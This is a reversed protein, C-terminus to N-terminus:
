RVVDRLRAIEALTADDAEDGDIALAALYAELAEAPQDLAVYGRGIEKLVAADDPAIEGAKVLKAAAESRLTTAASGSKAQAAQALAQGWGAFSLAHSPELRAAQEYAAIAPEPTGSGMLARGLYYHFRAWSPKAVVAKRFYDTAKAWDRQALYIKGAAAYGNPNKPDTAIAREFIKPAERQQGMNPEIQGINEWRHEPLVPIKRYHHQREDANSQTFDVGAFFQRHFFFVPFM